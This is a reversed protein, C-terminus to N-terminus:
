NKIFIKNMNTQVQKNSQNLIHKIEEWLVNKYKIIDYPTNNLIMLTQVACDFCKNPCNIKEINMPSKYDALLKDINNQQEVIVKNTCICGISVQLRSNVFLFKSISYHIDSSYILIVNIQKNILKSVIQNSTNNNYKIIKVNNYHQYKHLFFNFMQHNLTSKISRIDAVNILLSPGYSIKTQTTYLGINAIFQRLCYAEWDNQIQDSKVSPVTKLEVLLQNNDEFLTTNQIYQMMATHKIMKLPLLYHHFACLLGCYYENIMFLYYLKGDINISMICAGSVQKTTFLGVINCIKINYIDKFTCTVSMDANYFQLLKHKPDFILFCNINYSRNEDLIGVLPIKAYTEPKYVHKETKNQTNM